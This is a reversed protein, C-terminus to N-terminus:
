ESGTCLMFTPEYKALVPNLNIFNRWKLLIVDMDIKFDKYYNDHNDATDEQITVSFGYACDPGDLYLDAEGNRYHDFDTVYETYKFFTQMFKSERIDLTPWEDERDYTALDEEDANELFLRVMDKNPIHIGYSVSAYAPGHGM